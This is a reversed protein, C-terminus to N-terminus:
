ESTCLLLSNCTLVRSMVFLLSTAQLYTSSTCPWYDPCTIHEVSFTLESNVGNNRDDASRISAVILFVCKMKVLIVRLSASEFELVEKREKM